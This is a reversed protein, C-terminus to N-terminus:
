TWADDRRETLDAGLNRDVQGDRNVVGRELDNGVVADAASDRDAKSCPRMAQCCYGFRDILEIRAARVAVKQPVLIEMILMSGGTQCGDEAVYSIKSERM